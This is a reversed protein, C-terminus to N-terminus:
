SPKVTRFYFIEGDEKVFGEVFHCKASTSSVVFPYVKGVLPALRKEFASKKRKSCFYKFKVPRTKGKEDKYSLYVNLSYPGLNKLRAWLGDSFDFNFVADTIIFGSNSGKKITDEKTSPDYLLALYEKLTKSQPPMPKEGLKYQYELVVGELEAIRQELELERETKEM